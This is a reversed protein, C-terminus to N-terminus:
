NPERPNFNKKERRKKEEGDAPRKLRDGGKKEEKKQSRLSDLDSASILRYPPSSERHRSPKETQRSSLFSGCACVCRRPTKLFASRKKKYRLTLSASHLFRFFLYM